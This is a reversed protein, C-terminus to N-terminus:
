KCTIICLNNNNYYYTCAVHLLPVKLYLTVLFAKPIQFLASIFNFKLRIETVLLTKLLKLKLLLLVVNIIISNYLFSDLIIEMKWLLQWHLIKVSINLWSRLTSCQLFTGSHTQKSHQGVFSGWVSNHKLRPFVFALYHFLSKWDTSVSSAQIGGWYKLLWWRWVTLCRQSCTQDWFELWVERKAELWGTWM